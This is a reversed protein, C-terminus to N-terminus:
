KFSKIESLKFISVPAFNTDCDYTTTYPHKRFAENIKGEVNLYKEFMSIMLTNPNAHAAIKRMYRVNSDINNPHFNCIIFIATAMSRSVGCWCHIVIPKTQDWNSLFNAIKNIHYKDPLVQNTLLKSSIHSKNERFINNDNSVEIIDDFGLKLHHKM